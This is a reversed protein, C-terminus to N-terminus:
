YLKELDDQEHSHEEAPFTGTEVATVYESVATEIESRVDGFQKSFSPSWDSLGIVDDVVLVQGDCDPGAGIGITPTELAETVEAALNSPVHELVLSFAGAEEHAVALELIREAADQDTGQRPYGGYQNVHQPTLGLHSMVPIGLQVLRETLDVTHPGCELKVAEAGADKILRGANEISSPQDVGFSLFPMDAVVLAEDTARSVAGVHRAMDDVTVPLTTEYGLSTNGVSDGVLIVDVDAEDVLSATPADYATLMTIPEEGAKAQLDRVTSM